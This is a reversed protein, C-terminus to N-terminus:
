GGRARKTEIVGKGIEVSLRDRFTRSKMLAKVIESDKLVAKVIEYLTQEDVNDPVDELNINLNLDIIEEIIESESESKEFKLNAPGPGFDTSPIDTNLEDLNFTKMADKGKDVVGKLWEYMNSAKIESLPGTKPPSHPFLSSVADLAQRLGPISNIIANIFSQLANVGWQYMRGPLSTLYGAIANIINSGVSAAYGFAQGPLSALYSLFALFYAWARGPLQSVYAIFANLLGSAAQVGWSILNMAFQGIGLLISTFVQALLMKIAGWVQQLAQGVTINGSILNALITILTAIYNIFAMVIGSITVWVAMFAGSLFEWLIQLYPMLANIILGALWSLANWLAMVTSALQSFIGNAQSAQSNAFAAFVKGIASGLLVLANWLQSVVGVIQAFFGSAQAATSSAFSTWVKSIAAWLLGLAIIIPSLASVLGNWAAMLGGMIYGGLQVLGNWIWNLAGSLANWAALLGGYIYSGLQQLGAWLWNIANRVTENRNYLIALIAILAIIAIVVIMVPNASMAANLLWQAAAAAKSAASSAIMAATSAITAVVQGSTLFTYTSKAANVVWTAAASAKQAVSERISSATSANTAATQGGTIATYVSKASNQLWTSAASAKQSATHRIQSLTLQDTATRDVLLFTYLGKFSGIIAGMVPLLMAFGSVLASGVIMLKFVEPNTQKLAVMFNVLAVIIPIFAEGIQRGATSFGKKVIQIQGETTKMMESMSGGQELCKQLAKNYGEVDAAAGSWGAKILNERTIGFNAKLMDFEGNLGRFGAVMLDQAETTDKGMLLARQGIDNVTPSIQKLQENTMGTSMKIKSMAMGLDNLSVLSNNTMQDLSNVFDTAAAKNGMTASMLTTMRERIMALGVTAQYISGMGLAGFASTVYMGLEGMSNQLNEVKTKVTDLGKGLSTKIKNGVETVKNSVTNFGTILANGVTTSQIKTKLTDVSSKVRNISNDAFDIGAAIVRGAKSGSIGMRDLLAQGKSLGQLYQQQKLDMQAYASMGNTAMNDVKQTFRDGSIAAKEMANSIKNGMGTMKSEVKEAVESAKDIGRIIIEMLAAM